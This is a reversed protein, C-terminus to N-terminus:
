YKNDLITEIYSIEDDGVTNNEVGERVAIGVKVARDKLRWHDFDKKSHIEDLWGEPKGSASEIDRALSSGILRPSKDRLWSGTQVNSKGISEAFEGITKFECRLMETNFHRIYEVPYEIKMKLVKAPSYQKGHIIIKM